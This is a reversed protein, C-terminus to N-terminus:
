FIFDSSKLSVNLVGWLILGFLSQIKWWIYGISEQNGSNEWAEDSYILVVAKCIVYSFNLNFLQDLNYIDLTYTKTM